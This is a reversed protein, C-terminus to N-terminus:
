PRRELVDGGGVRGPHAGKRLARVRQGTSSGQRGALGRHAGDRAHDEQDGPRVPHAPPLGADASGYTGAEGLVTRYFYVVRYFSSGTHRTGVTPPGTGP